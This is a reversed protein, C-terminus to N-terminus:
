QVEDSRAKTLDAIAKDKSRSSSSSGCLYQFAAGAMLLLANFMDRLIQSEPLQRTAAMFCFFLFATLVVLSTLKGFFNESKMVGDEM